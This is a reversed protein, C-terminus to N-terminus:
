RHKSSSGKHKARVHDDLNRKQYYEKGCPECRFTQKLHATKYHEECKETRSFKYNCGEFKCKFNKDKDHVERVHRPYNPSLINKRCKHCYQYGRSPKSKKPAPDGVDETYGENTNHVEKLHKEYDAVPIIMKACHICIEFEKKSFRNVPTKPGRKTVVKVTDRTIDKRRENQRSREGDM